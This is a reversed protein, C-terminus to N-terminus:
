ISLVTKTNVYVRSHFTQSLSSDDGSVLQVLFTGLENDKISNVIAEKQTDYVGLINTGKIVIYKDLYKTKLYEKNKLFYQYEIDLNM